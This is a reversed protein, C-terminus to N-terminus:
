TLSKTGGTKIYSYEHYVCTIFYVHIMLAILKLNSLKTICLKIVDFLFQPCSKVEYMQTSSRTYIEIFYLLANVICFNCLPTLVITPASGAINPFEPKLYIIM